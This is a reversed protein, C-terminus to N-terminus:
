DLTLGQTRLYLKRQQRYKTFFEEKEIQTMRTLEQATIKLKAEPAEMKRKAEDKLRQEERKDWKCINFQEM